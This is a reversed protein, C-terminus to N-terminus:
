GHDPLNYSSVDDALVEVLPLLGVDGMDVLDDKQPHDALMETLHDKLSTGAPWADLWEQVQVRTLQIDRRGIVSM